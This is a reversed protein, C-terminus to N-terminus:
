KSDDDVIEAEVPEDAAGLLKTLAESVQPSPAVAGRAFIAVDVDEGLARLASLAVQAGKPDSVDQNTAIKMLLARAFLKRIAPDFHYAEIVAKIEAQIEERTQLSSLRANVEKAAKSPSKGSMILDVFKRARLRKVDQASVADDWIEFGVHEPGDWLIVSLPPPEGVGTEERRYIADPEAWEIGETLVSEEM